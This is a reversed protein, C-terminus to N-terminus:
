GEKTKKWYEEKFKNYNDVNEFKVINGEFSKTLSENENVSFKARELLVCRCNCDQSATGFGGPHMAKGESCEFYEDLERIQGDLERHAPRTNKDFTSDWEKVIVAGKEKAKNMCSLKSESSIRNGETRVIRYSKYFDAETDLAIKQAIKTYTSGNSIGRTIESQLTKKLKDVNEYIKTSLKFDGTEKSISVIVEQQNIAFILPTGENQLNYLTGIFGDEYVANLYTNLDQINNNGLVDAIKELQKELVEQYKMQYIQSQTMEDSKLSKIKDKVDKLAQTYNDKLKEIIEKENKLQQKEVEKQFKNLLMVKKLNWNISLKM